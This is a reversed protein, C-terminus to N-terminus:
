KAQCLLVTMGVLTEESMGFSSLARELCVLPHAIEYMRQWSCLCNMM